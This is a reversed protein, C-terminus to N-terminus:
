VNQKVMDLIKEMLKETIEELIEESPKKTPTVPSRLIINIMAKNPDSVPHGNEENGVSDQISNNKQPSHNGAKRRRGM